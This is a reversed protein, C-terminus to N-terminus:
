WMMLTADEQLTDVMMMGREGDLVVLADLGTRNIEVSKNKHLIFFLPKYSTCPPTTTHNWTFPLCM